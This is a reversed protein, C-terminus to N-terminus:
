RAQLLKRRWLLFVTFLLSLLTGLAVGELVKHSVGRRGQSYVPEYGLLRGLPGLAAFLRLLAQMSSRSMYFDDKIDDLLVAMRLLHGLAGWKDAQLDHAITFGGELMEETHLAPRHESVLCLAESDSPNGWAHPVRPPGVAVEGEVYDREQGGVRARLTGRVVYHREEQIPHVHESVSFGPPLVVEVRLLEGNTQETTKLFTARAGLLPAEVVDGPQAM